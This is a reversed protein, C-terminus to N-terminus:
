GPLLNGIYSKTYPINEHEFFARMRELKRIGQAFDVMHTRQAATTGVYPVWPNVQAIKPISSKNDRIFQLTEQFENETEGPYNTILSIEFHLGEASLLQFFSRAETLTFGKNMRKLVAASASELGIFLNFCGARKMKSVLERSM